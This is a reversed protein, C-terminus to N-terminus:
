PFTLFSKKFDRHIFHVTGTIRQLKPPAPLIPSLKSLRDAKIDQNTCLNKPKDEDVKRDKEKKENSRKRTQKPNKRKQKTKEEVRIYDIKWSEVSKDVEEFTM